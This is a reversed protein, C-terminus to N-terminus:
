MKSETFCFQSSYCLPNQSLIRIPVPCTPVAFKQLPLMTAKICLFYGRIIYSYQKFHKLYKAILLFLRSTPFVCYYIKPGFYRIILVDCPYRGISSRIEILDTSGEEENM